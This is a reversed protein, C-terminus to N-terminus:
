LPGRLHPVLNSRTGQCLLSRARNTGDPRISLLLGRPAPNVSPGVENNRQHAEIHKCCNQFEDRYSSQRYIRLKKLGDICLHRLITLSMRQNEVIKKREEIPAWPMLDAIIDLYGRGVNALVSALQSMKNKEEALKRSLDQKLAEVELDTIKKYSEIRGLM